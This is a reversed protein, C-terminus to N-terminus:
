VSYNKRNQKYTKITKLIVENLQQITTAKNGFVLTRQTIGIRSLFVKRSVLVLSPSSASVCARHIHVLRAENLKQVYSDPMHSKVIIPPVCFLDRVVGDDYTLDITQRSWTRAQTMVGHRHLFVFLEFLCM